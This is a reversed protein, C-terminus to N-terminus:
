VSLKLQMDRHPIGADMYEESCVIFGAREYFPIAHTQASLTINKCGRSRCSEVAANLLAQGVGQGRRGKLVAMRGIIGNDLIRACGIAKDEADLALLHIATEDLGDWELEVPVQQEEIFVHQRVARLQTQANIWDVEEISFRAQSSHRNM